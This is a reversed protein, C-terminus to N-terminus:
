SLGNLETGYYSVIDSDSIRRNGPQWPPLGRRANVWPDETHTLTELMDGTYDKYIKYIDDIFGQKEGISVAEEIKGIDYEGRYEDYLDLCVPGHVWAEFRCDMIKENFIALHWSYVYYCLKQLKKHTMQSKTLLYKAVDKIDLMKYEEKGKFYVMKGMNENRGTTVYSKYM